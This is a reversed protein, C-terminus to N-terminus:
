GESREASGQPLVLSMPGALITNALAMVAQEHEPTVILVFGAVQGIRDDTVEVVCAGEGGKKM